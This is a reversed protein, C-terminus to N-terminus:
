VDLAAKHCLITKYHLYGKIFHFKKGNVVGDADIEFAFNFDLEFSFFLDAKLVFGFDFGFDFASAFDFCSSFGVVVTGTEVLM